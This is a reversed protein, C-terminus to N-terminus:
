LTFILRNFCGYTVQRIDPVTGFDHCHPYILDFPFFVFDILLGALLAKLIAEFYKFFFSIELGCM